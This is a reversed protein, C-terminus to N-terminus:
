AGLTEVQILDDGLLCLRALSHRQWRLAPSSLFTIRYREDRPLDQIQTVWSVLAKLCSSNMFALTRLDVTVGALRRHRAEAHLARLFEELAMRVMLDANGSVSATLVGGVVEAAASFGDESVEVIM